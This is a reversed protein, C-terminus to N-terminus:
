NTVGIKKYIQIKAMNNTASEIISELTQLRGYTTVADACDKITPKWDPFSVYWNNETAVDILSSGSKDRDPCVIVQKGVSNIVDIQGQTLKNGLSSVANIVLADLVGETIIVYKRNNHLQDYNYLYGPQVDSYYKPINEEEAIIRSTYGVIKNDAYFPIIVRKNMKMFPDPSWYFRKYFDIGRDMLYKYVFVADAPPNYSENIVQDLLKSNAPLRRESFETISQYRKTVEPEQEKLRMAEFQLEKLKQEPVGINTLLNQMKRGLLRGPTFSAKYGCNFCHYSTVDSFKFGGRSRTDNRAHGQTTCMPCNITHWGSPTKKLKAAHAMITSQLNM